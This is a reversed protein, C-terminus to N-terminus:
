SEQAILLQQISPVLTDFGRIQYRSVLLPMVENPKIPCKFQKHLYDPGYIESLDNRKCLLYFLVNENNWYPSVIRPLYRIIQNFRKQLTHFSRKFSLFFFTSKQAQRYTPQLAHLLELNHVATLWAQHVTLHLRVQKQNQYSSNRSLQECYFKLKTLAGKTWFSFSLREQQSLCGILKGLVQFLTSFPFTSTQISDIGEQVLIKVQSTLRYAQVFEALILQILLANDEYYAKFHHNQRQIQPLM